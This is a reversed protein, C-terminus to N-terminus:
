TDDLAAHPGYAFTWSQDSNQDSSKQEVVKWEADELICNVFTLPVASINGPMGGAGPKRRLRCWSAMFEPGKGMRSSAPPETRRPKRGAHGISLPRDGTPRPGLFPHPSTHLRSQCRNARSPSRLDRRTVSNQKRKPSWM